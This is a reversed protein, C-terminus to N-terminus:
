VSHDVDCHRIVLHNGDAWRSARDLKAPIICDGIDPFDPRWRSAIHDGDTIAGGRTVNQSLGTWVTRKSSDLNALAIIAPRASAL